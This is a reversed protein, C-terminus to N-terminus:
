SGHERDAGLVHALRLREGLARHQESRREVAVQRPVRTGRRLDRHDGLLGAVPGLVDHPRLEDPLEDRARRRRRQGPNTDAGLRNIGHQGESWYTYQQVGLRPIAPANDTQLQAVKEALTMRSVLDAARKAFSYKTNLYIPPNASIVHPLTASALLATTRSRVKTGRKTSAASVVGGSVVLWLGALLAVAGLFRMWGLSRRGAGVDVDWARM